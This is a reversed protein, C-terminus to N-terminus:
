VNRSKQLARFVAAGGLSENIHQTQGAADSRVKFLTQALLQRRFGVAHQIPYAIRAAPSKVGADKALAHAAFALEPFGLVLQEVNIRLSEAKVLMADAALAMGPYISEAPRSGLARQKPSRLARM